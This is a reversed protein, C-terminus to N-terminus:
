DDFLADLQLLPDLRDAVDREFTGLALIEDIEEDRLLRQDGTRTIFPAWYDDSPELQASVGTVLRALEISRDLIAGLQARIEHLYTLTAGQVYCWETAGPRGADIVRDIDGQLGVETEPKRAALAFQAIRNSLELLAMQVTGAHFASESADFDLFEGSGIANELAQRWLGHAGRPLVRWFLRLRRAQGNTLRYEPVRIEGPRPISSTTFIAPIAIPEFDRRVFHCVRINTRLEWLLSAELSRRRLPGSLHLLARFTDAVDRFSDFRHIWNSVGPQEEAVEALFAKILPWDENGPVAEINHQWYDFVSGRAFPIIRLRGDAAAQRARRYETRTVSIGDDFTSGYREGVVLVFYDSDQIAQAAALRASEDLAHPFTPFESLVVDFGSGELFYKISSRLDALDVITSSV